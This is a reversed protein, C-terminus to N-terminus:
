RRVTNCGYRLNVPPANDTRTEKDLKYLKDSDKSLANHSSCSKSCGHCFKNEALGGNYGKRVLNSM